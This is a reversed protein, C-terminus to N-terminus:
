VELGVSSQVGVLRWARSSLGSVHIAAAVGLSPVSPQVVEEDLFRGEFSAGAM